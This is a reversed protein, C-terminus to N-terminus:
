PVSGLKKFFRQANNEFGYKRYFNHARHLNNDSELNVKQVNQNRCWVFFADMLEKANNSGRYEQKVFFEEVEARMEGSRLMPCLYGTIVGVPKSDTNILLFICYDKRALLSDYIRSGGTRATHSEGPKGTVQEICDVRFEDLLELVTTKDQLTASRVTM